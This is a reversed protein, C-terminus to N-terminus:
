WPPTRSCHRPRVLLSGLVTPRRGFTRTASKEVSVSLYMYRGASCTDVGDIGSYVTWGAGSTNTEGRAAYQIPMPRTHSGRREGKAEGEMVKMASGIAPLPTGEPVPM